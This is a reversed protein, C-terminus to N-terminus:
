QIMTRLYHPSPGLFYNFMKGITKMIQQVKQHVIAYEQERYVKFGKRERQDRLLWVTLKDRDIEPNGRIERDHGAKPM